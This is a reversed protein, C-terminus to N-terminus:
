GHMQITLWTAPVAVGSVPYPKSIKKRFDELVNMLVHNLVLCRQCGTTHGDAWILENTEFTASMALM